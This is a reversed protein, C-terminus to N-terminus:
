KGSRNVKVSTKTGDDKILIAEKVVGDAYVLKIDKPKPPVANKINAIEEAIAVIADVVGSLSEQVDMKLAELEAGQVFMKPAETENLRDYIMNQHENLMQAVANRFNAIIADKNNM